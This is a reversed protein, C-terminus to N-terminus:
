TAPDVEQFDLVRHVDPPVGTAATTWLIPSLLPALTTLRASWGEEALRKWNPMAGEAALRDLLEWDLGDLGLWIVSPTTAARPARTAVDASEVPPAARPAPAAAEKEPARCSPALLAPLLLLLARAAQKVPAAVTADEM